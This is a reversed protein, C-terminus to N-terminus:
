RRVGTMHLLGDIVIGVATNWRGQHEAQAILDSMRTNEALWAQDEQSLENPLDPTPNIRSRNRRTVRKTM